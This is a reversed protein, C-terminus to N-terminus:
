RNVENNPLCIHMFLIGLTCQFGSMVIDFLYKMHEHDELGYRHVLSKWEAEFDEVLLANDVCDQLDKGFNCHNKHVSGM